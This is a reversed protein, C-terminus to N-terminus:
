GILSQITETVKSIMIKRSSQDYMDNVNLSFGSYNVSERNISHLLTEYEKKAYDILYPYKEDISNDIAYKPYLLHQGNELFMYVDNIVAAITLYSQIIEQIKGNLYEKDNNVRITEYDISFIKKQMPFLSDQTWFGISILLKNNVIKPMIVVTPINSMMAYINALAPGGTVTNGDIFRYIHEEDIGFKKLQVQIDDVISSYTLSLPDKKSSAITHKAIVINLLSSEESTRKENIAEISRHLPWDNFYMKLEAKQLDSELKQAKQIRKFERQQRKLWIKFAREEAEKQDEYKEKLAQLEKKFNEDELANKMANERNKDGNYLSLLSSAVFFLSCGSQQLDNLLGGLSSENIANDFSKIMDM